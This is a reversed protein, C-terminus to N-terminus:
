LMAALVAAESGIRNITAIVQEALGVAQVIHDIQAKQDELKRATIQFNAVAQKLGAVTTVTQLNIAQTKADIAEHLKDLLQAALADNDAHFTATLAASIQKVYESSAAVVENVQAVQDADVDAM